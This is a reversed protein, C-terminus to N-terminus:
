KEVELFNEAIEDFTPPELDDESSNAGNDVESKDGESSTTAPTYDTFRAKYKERWTTETEVVKAKLEEIEKVYGSIDTTDESLTDSLDELLSIADDSTNDGIFDSAKKLLDEKSLKPM